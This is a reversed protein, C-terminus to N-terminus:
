FNRITAVDFDIVKKRNDFEKQITARVSESTGVPVASKIVDLMYKNLNKGITAAVDLVYRM